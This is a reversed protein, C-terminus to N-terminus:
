TLKVSLPASPEALEPAVGAARAIVCVRNDDSVYVEASFTPDKAREAPLVTGRVWAVLDDLAGEAAVVEWMRTPRRRTASM